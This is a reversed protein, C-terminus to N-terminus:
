LNIEDIGIGPKNGLYIRGEESNPFKCIDNEFLVGTAIGSEEEINLASCLHLYNLRGINSELLSSINARKSESKILEIIKTTISIGGIIMPKLIFVDASQFELIKNVSDIDRIMEDAAIPIDTHLSLEHMDEYSHNGVFRGVRLLLEAAAFGEATTASDFIGKPRVILAEGDDPTNFFGGRPDRFHEVVSRALDAALELWTAEFTARHDQNLDGRHPIYVLDPKQKHVMEELPIILDIQSKDLQEDPLDLFFLEHYSLVEKAKRCADQEREILKPDYNHNYARNSVICVAVQDGTEVHRAITGGCGLVEDDMHPAIVLIRMNM